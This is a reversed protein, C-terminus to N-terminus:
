VSKKMEDILKKQVSMALEEIFLIDDNTFENEKKEFSSFNLTGYIINNIIVPTSIYSQLQVADYLPHLLKGSPESVDHFALTTRKSYVHKCYLAELPFKDNIKFSDTKGVLFKIRYLENDIHSLIGVPLKFRKCGAELDEQFM